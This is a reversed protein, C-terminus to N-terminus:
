FLANHAERVAYRWMSFVVGTLVQAVAARQSAALTRGTQHEVWPIAKAPDIAGWPPAGELLHLLQSAVGV